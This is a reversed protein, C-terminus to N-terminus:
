VLPREPEGRAELATLLTDLAADLRALQFDYNDVSPRDGAFPSGAPVRPRPTHADFYNLFAFFPRDRPTEALWGLFTAGLEAARKREFPRKRAFRGVSVGEVEQYLTASRFLQLPSRAYDEFHAFGRALGTEASTYYANAVFGATRYGGAEFAEALTRTHPGLPKLWDARQQYHYLGTFMSVHSPLTWPATVHARDFVVGR